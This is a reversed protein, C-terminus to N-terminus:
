TSSCECGEQHYKKGKATQTMDEPWSRYLICMDQLEKETHWSLCVDAHWDVIMFSYMSYFSGRLQFTLKKRLISSLCILVRAWICSDVCCYHAKSPNAVSYYQVVSPPFTIFSDTRIHITSNGLIIFFILHGAFYIVIPLIICTAM